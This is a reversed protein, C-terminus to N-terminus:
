SRAPNFSRQRPPLFPRVHADLFATTDRGWIPIGGAGRLHHGAAPVHGPNSATAYPPYMRVDHPLNAKAMVDAVSPIDEPAADSEFGDAHGPVEGVEGRRRAGRSGAQRSWRWRRTSRRTATRAIALLTVIGGLSWGVVGIRQSRGHPFNAGCRRLLLRRSTRRQLATAGSDKGVADSWTPGDSSCGRREARARCLRWGRVPRRDAGRCCPSASPTSGRVM